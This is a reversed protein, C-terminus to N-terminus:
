ALAIYGSYYMCATLDILDIPKVSVHASEGFNQSCAMGSTSEVVTGESKKAKMAKKTAKMAKMAKMAKKPAADGEAAKKAKMAKMAKMATTAKMAAKMAMASSTFKGM